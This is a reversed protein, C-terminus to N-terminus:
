RSRGTVRGFLRRWLGPRERGADLDEFTDVPEIQGLATGARFFEEEEDSFWGPLTQIRTAM